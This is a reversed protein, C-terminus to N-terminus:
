DSANRGFSNNWSKLMGFYLKKQCKCQNWLSHITYRSSFLWLFTPLQYRRTQFITRSSKLNNFTINGKTLESFRVFVFWIHTIQAFSCYFLGTRQIRFPSVSNAKSSTQFSAKWNPASTKNEGKKVSLGYHNNFVNGKKMISRLVKWGQHLNSIHKWSLLRYRCGSFSTLVCPCYKANLDRPSDESGGTVVIVNPLLRSRSLMVGIKSWNQEQSLWLAVPRNRGTTLSPFYWLM